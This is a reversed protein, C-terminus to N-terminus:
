DFKITDEKILVHCKLIEELTTMYLHPSTFADEIIKSYWRSLYYGSGKDGDEKFIYFRISSLTPIPQHAPIYRILEQLISFCIYQKINQPNTYKCSLYHQYMNEEVLFSKNCLKCTYRPM